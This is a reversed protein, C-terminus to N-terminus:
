RPAAGALLTDIQERLADLSFPKRLMIDIGAAHAEEIDPRTASGTLMVIPISDGHGSRVARTLEVGNLHPMDLDICMLDFVGPEYRDLAERGDAVTEVDHGVDAILYELLARIDDDDEAVLIRAM